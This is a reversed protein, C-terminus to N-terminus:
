KELNLLEKLQKLLIKVKRDLKIDANSNEQINNLDNYIALYNSQELLELTKVKENDNLIEIPMSSILNKISNTLFLKENTETSANRNKNLILDNRANMDYMVQEELFPKGIKTVQITSGLKYKWCKFAPTFKSKIPAYGFISIIANGMSSYNNLQALESPYILPRERVSASSSIDSSKSTNFSVNNQVITYNGCQKSFSNITDLDTTGIFIQINCNSKIINATKDDYVKSLQAYSQVVLTLWIKRSRGVTIMQELKHVRPLNGFEDLLFYVSRPLTLDPYTNAKAVLAKYAQLIMMSALTHRTEKEDPIQMFLATPKLAIEGFDIENSSTLACISKDSFLSLKDFITSLYSGRTKDSADLVQKSLSVAKSIPSRKAFYKILNECDNETNTAIKTINYFNYKEKTMGLAPNESDELMALAIALIFNKAGSEWIPESKNLVPCLASVIDHLDEYIEDYLEQKKVQIASLLDEQSAYTQNEFKYVNNEKDETIYEDLHLMKQYMMYPKELPNWRVSNYPYRLDVIKTDYGLQQLREAHLAYLEGKPDSIFLSPKNKTNALIQITPSIFTTTKGSGTTGIVLTHASKALTINLKNKVMEAKIPIGEVFQQSLNDFNIQKFNKSLEKETQFHAQELGAQIATEGNNQMINKAHKNWYNKYWNYLYLCVIILYIFVSYILTKLNFLLDFNLYFVFNNAVFCNALFGVVYCLVFLTIWLIIKLYLKM